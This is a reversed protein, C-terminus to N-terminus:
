ALSFANMNGNQNRTLAGRAVADLTRLVWDELSEGSSKAAASIIELQKRSFSVELTLAPQAEMGTGAQRVTGEEAPEGIDADGERGGAQERGQLSWRVQRRLMNRSWSSEEAKRLWYEQEAEPLAAVEAHHGFSLTDRRRSLPFRRAVWAYNRLTQYDLMTEEVAKRYRGEFACEGYVLWDGLCWTSSTTLSSLYQGIEYWKDFAL